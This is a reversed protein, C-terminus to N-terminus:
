IRGFLTETLWWDALGIADSIDGGPDDAMAAAYSPYRSAVSLRRAAKPVGRTWDNELIAHVECECATAYWRCTIGASGVGCGYVALGAGLGANRRINVKGKTWEILVVAPRLEVLLNLLDDAMATVRSWSGASDSPPTIRGAQVLSRDRRVAAWGIVTSSPDLGLILNGDSM